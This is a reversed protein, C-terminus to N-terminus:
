KRRRRTRSFLLSICIYIQDGFEYFPRVAGTQGFCCIPESLRVSLLLFMFVRVDPRARTSIRVSRYFSFWESNDDIRLRGSRVACHQRAAPILLFFVHSRRLVTFPVLPRCPSTETMVVVIYPVLYSPSPYLSFFFHSIGPPPPLLFLIPFRFPLTLFYLRTGRTQSSFM